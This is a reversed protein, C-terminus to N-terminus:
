RSVSGLSNLSKRIALEQNGVRKFLGDMTQEAVYDSLQDPTVNAAQQANNATEAVQTASANADLLKSYLDVAGNAQLKATIAPLLAAKVQAGAKGKLYETASTKGANLLSESSLTDMNNIIGVLIPGVVPVADEAAHNMLTQLLAAQPDQQLSRAVDIALGLPPPLLIRVLPDDLFGGTTALQNVVMEVGEALLQRFRSALFEQVRTQAAQQVSDVSLTCACLLAATLFIIQIYRMFVGYHLQEFGRKDLNVAKFEASIGM